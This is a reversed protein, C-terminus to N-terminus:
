ASTRADVQRDRHVEFAAVSVGALGGARDGGANDAAVEFVLELRDVLGDGGDFGHQAGPM